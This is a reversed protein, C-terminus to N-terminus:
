VKIRSKVQEPVKDFDWIKKITYGDYLSADEGIICSNSVVEVFQGSVTNYLIYKMVRIQLNQEVPEFGTVKEETVGSVIISYRNFMTNLDKVGNAVENNLIMYKNGLWDGEHIFKMANFDGRNVFLPKSTIVKGYKAGGVLKTTWVLESNNVVGMITEDSSTIRFIFNNSDKRYVLDACDNKKQRNDLKEQIDFKEYETYTTLLNCVSTYTNNRMYKKSDIYNVPAYLLNLENLTKLQLQENMFRSSDLELEAIEGYDQLGKATMYLGYLMRSHRDRGACVNGYIAKYTKDGKDIHGQLLMRLKTKEMESMLHKDLMEVAEDVSNVYVFLDNNIHSVRSEIFHRITHETVSGKVLYIKLSGTKFIITPFGCRDIDRINGGLIIQKLATCNYFAKVGIYEISDGLIVRTLERYDHFFDNPVDKLRKFRRMDAVVDYSNSAKFRCKGTFSVLTDPLQMMRMDRVSEAIEITDTEYEVIDDENIDIDCSIYKRDGTFIIKVKNTRKPINHMSIVTAPITIKYLSSDITYSRFCNTVRKTGHPLVVEVEGTVSNNCNNFSEDLCIKGHIRSIDFQTDICNVFTSDIECENYFKSSIKVKCNNLGHFCGHINREGKLNNRINLTTDAIKNFSYALHHANLNIDGSTCLEDFCCKIGDYEYKDWDVRNDITCCEFMSSLVKVNPLNSEGISLGRLGAGAFTHVYGGAQFHLKSIRVNDNWTIANVNEFNKGFIITVPEKVEGKFLCVTQSVGTPTHLISCRADVDDLIYTKSVDGYEYLNYSYGMHNMYYKFDGISWEVNIDGVQSKLKEFRSDVKNKDVLKEAKGCSYTDGIKNAVDIQLKAIDSKKYEAVRLISM